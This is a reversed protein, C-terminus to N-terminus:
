IISVSHPTIVVSLALSDNVDGVPYTTVTGAMTTKDAKWGSNQILYENVM